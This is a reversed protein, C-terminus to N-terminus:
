QEPSSPNKRANRASVTFIAVLETAEDLLPTAAKTEALGTAEILRLWYQTERAERLILAYRNAFDRRSSSAKAEETNAGISTGARLLQGAIQRHVGPTVSLARCFRVIDCAFVFTRDTLARPKAEAM